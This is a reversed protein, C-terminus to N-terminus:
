PGLKKEPILELCILQDKGRVYLLGHALIPAAWCPYELVPGPDDRRRRPLEMVSVAEPKAANLKLLILGGDETLCLLHSDVKLLSCQGLGPVSWKIMGTRLEVCRLEANPSHRGSSAYVHGDHYVPTNWHCQLSKNRGKDADHWVVDYGGPRVRLLASGPGYCESIFVLDNVVVPNAANVSELLKARWPYHFDVKGTQPEFGILGGRAFVFCWRRGNITALVPGACSALEDTIKYRVKGTHKDFAVVGSGNGKQDETPSTGSNPPSGGVQVILLDGEVVPTSSVGFFNQVVGFEAATDVKWVLKGDEARICHLKGDAGYLYVRDGDVVPCCRPGNNYGYQDEYDTDYEFRWLEVATESQMCTLRAKDGHRDFQFLRGRSISPMGYGTGLKKHWVVRLGEKPWPNLIGTEPSVSDGTPGLFAPWDSGQKRTRLESPLSQPEAALSVCGALM